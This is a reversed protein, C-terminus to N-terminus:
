GIAVQYMPRLIMAVRILHPLAEFHNTQLSGGGSGRNESRECHAVEGHKVAPKRLLHYLLLCQHSFHYERSLAMHLDKFDIQIMRFRHFRQIRGLNTQYEQTRSLHLARQEWCADSKPGSFTTTWDRLQSM